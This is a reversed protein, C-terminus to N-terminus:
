VGLWVHSHNVSLSTKRTHQVAERQKRLPNQALERMNIMCWLIIAFVRRDKACSRWSYIFLPPRVSLALPMGIQGQSPLLASPANKM